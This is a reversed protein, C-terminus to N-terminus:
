AIAPQAVLLRDLTIPLERARVGTAHWVANAIAATIGTIGIEGIGRVGVSNFNVDPDEIFEVAIDPVDANTPVLYDALNRTVASGDRPDLVTRELLAMGIGWVVGGQIQSRATLANLIRGANIVAVVRAVRIQRTLPDVRVEAFMAGFSHISTKGKGEEGGSASPKAGSTAELVGGPSQRALEAYGRGAEAARRRLERAAAQVAPTVSASTSSGGSVGAEPLNSDGMECTVQEVPVGLEEAAVQALTTYTGTGLDQTASRVRVRGAADVSVSAKAPRRNGPYTATAMGWGVLERGEKMSGPEPTRRSWGFLKAGRRYCELLHKNSWPIEKEPDMAAHNRVRLEVPDLQLQAALEDMASELAFTGTAEGPARMPTPSGTNVRAVRHSVELN